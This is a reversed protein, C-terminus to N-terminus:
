YSLDASKYDGRDTVIEYGIAKMKNSLSKVSEAAEDGTCIKNDYLLYDKRHEPPSLNPMVVNAGHLIGKERGMSDATGLATTAPLLIQPNMLRIVSLLVLCLRVSGNPEDAFPTDKHHIFPGIGCMHPQLSHIFILDDALTDYTQYPSGVMFGAGTQFGIEKLNKLCNIRNKLTMNSPHLKSYHEANATEHRLLYRDAGANYLMKYSEESREGLSLTVACDSFNHKITSVIDCMIDDDFFADEGGQLVFTHFGLEYGNKCCELIQQKSLRYRVANKNSCRLGCYLCDNKCIGSIEILGRIYIKNGFVKQSVTQASKQLYEAEDETVTSLLQVYESHEAIHYKKIKDIIEFNTM